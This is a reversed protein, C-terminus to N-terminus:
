GVLFLSETRKRSFEQTSRIRGPISKLGHRFSLLAASVSALSDTDGSLRISKVIGDLTNTAHQLIWFVSAATNPSWCNLGIIQGIKAQIEASISAVPQPGLIKTLEELSAQDPAPLSLTSTILDKTTGSPLKKLVLEILNKPDIAPSHHLLYHYAVAVSHASERSDKVPHTADALAHAAKEVSELDPYLGALWGRMVSANGPVARSRQAERVAELGEGAASKPALAKEYYSMISGHGHRPYGRQKLDRDFEELFAKAFEDATPVEGEQTTRLILELAALAHETDDTYGGENTRPTGLTQTPFILTHRYSPWNSFRSNSWESFVDEHKKAPLFEFPAGLADGLAAAESADIVKQIQYGSLKLRM